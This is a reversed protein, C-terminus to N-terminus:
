KGMSTRWNVWISENGSGGVNGKGARKVDTYPIIKM